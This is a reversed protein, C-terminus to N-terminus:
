CWWKAMQTELAKGFGNIVGAGSTFTLEGFYLKGDVLYWDIRVYDFGDNMILNNYEIASKLMSKEDDTLLYDDGGHHWVCEDLSNLYYGKSYNAFRDDIVQLVYKITNDKQKFCHFKYDRPIDNGKTIKKEMLIRPEILSYHWEDSVSSYDLKLWEECEQIIKNKTMDDPNENLITVMGAGHNPKIVTESWDTISLLDKPNKTQVILPILVDENILDKIYQRVLFKDSLESYKPNKDFVMRRIIKENFTKPNEIDPWKKYVRFYKIKVRLISPSLKLILHYVKKLIINM